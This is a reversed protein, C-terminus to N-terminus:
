RLSDIPIDINPKDEWGTFDYHWWESKVSIFGRKEMLTKLLRRHNLVEETLEMYLHSAKQTFDDYETPMSIPEGKLDAVSVDVAYGKNHRSGKAPDMVYQPNPLIEWMLKQVSLPRYGDFVILQYGSDALEKQVSQLALAADKALFCRPSPYLVQGTFNNATAYRIDLIIEPMLKQLDVLETQSRTACYPTFVSLILIVTLLFYKKM